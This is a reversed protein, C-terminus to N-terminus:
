NPRTGRPVSAHFHTIQTAFKSSMVCYRGIVGAMQPHRDPAFFVSKLGSIVPMAKSGPCGPRAPDGPHTVEPLRQCRRMGALLKVIRDRGAKGLFLGPIPPRMIVFAGHMARASRLAIRM